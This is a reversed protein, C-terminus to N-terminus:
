LNSMTIGGYDLGMYGGRGWRGKSRMIDISRNKERTFVKTYAVM